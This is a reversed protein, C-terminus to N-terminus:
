HLSSNIELHSKSIFTKTGIILIVYSDFYLGIIDVIITNRRIYLHINTIIHYVYTTEHKIIM